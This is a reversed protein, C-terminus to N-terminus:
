KANNTTPNHQQGDAEEQSNVEPTVSPLQETQLYAVIAGLIAVTLKQKDGM